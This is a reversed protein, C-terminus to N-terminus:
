MKQGFFGQPRLILILVILGFGLPDSVTPPFFYPCLSDVAGMVLGGTWIGGISGIGALIVVAIIKVLMIDAIVVHLVLVSGMLGGALGALGCGMACALASIRNTNIGQLAAGNRDHAIALMAQGFKTKQIFFALAILLVCAIVLVMLRDAGFIVGGVKISGSVLSPMGKGYPGVTLDAGTKLSIVLVIAMVTAKEFDQQFPRFCFKEIFLGFLATVFMTLPLSVWPGLGMTVWLDYCVFGGIMYIAGHAFNLIRMVSFVLAFGLAVLVYISSTMLVTVIHMAVQSAM